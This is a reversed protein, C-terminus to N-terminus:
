DEPTSCCMCLVGQAAWMDTRKIGVLPPLGSRKFGLMREAAGIIAALATDRVIRSSVCHCSSSEGRQLAATVESLQRGRDLVDQQASELAAESAQHVNQSTLAGLAGGCCTVQM